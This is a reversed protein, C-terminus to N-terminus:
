VYHSLEDVIDQTTMEELGFRWKIRHFTTSVHGPTMGLTAGIRVPSACRIYGMLVRMELPSLRHQPLPHRGM